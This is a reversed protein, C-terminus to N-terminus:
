CAPAAPPRTTYEIFVTRTQHDLHTVVKVLEDGLLNYGQAWYKGLEDLSAKAMQVKTEPQGAPKPTPKAARKKKPM